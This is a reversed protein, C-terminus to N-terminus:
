RDFGGQRIVSLSVWCGREGARYPLGKLLGNYKMVGHKLELIYKQLLTYIWVNGAYIQLVYKATIHLAPTKLCPPMSIM